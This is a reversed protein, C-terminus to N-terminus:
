KQLHLCTIFPIPVFQTLPFVTTTVIQFGVKKAVKEVESRSVRHHPGEPMKLNFYELVALLPEWWSDVFVVYVSGSTACFSYLTQMYMYLDPVHEVVDVSLVVDYTKISPLTHTFSISPYSQWKKRAIAIMQSSPDYGVGSRPNLKALITGTGCGCDFITVNEPILLRLKSLIAHYYLPKQNKYRDYSDAIADFHATVQSQNM